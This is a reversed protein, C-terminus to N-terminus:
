LTGSGLAEDPSASGRNEGAVRIALLQVSAWAPETFGSASHGSQAALYFRECQMANRDVSVHRRTAM